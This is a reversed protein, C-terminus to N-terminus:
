STFLRVSAGTDGGGLARHIAEAIKRAGTESPEIQPVFDAPGTCVSRLDIVDAAFHGAARIIRDNFPALAVRVLRASLADSLPVEYITCVILRGVRPLLAAVLAQYKGAFADMVREFAVLV